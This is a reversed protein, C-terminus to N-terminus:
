PQPPSRQTCPAPLVSHHATRRQAASPEGDAVDRVWTPQLRTEGGDILPIFPLRKVLQAYSNFLRDETGTLVAPRFITAGPVESHVAAEGDYQV